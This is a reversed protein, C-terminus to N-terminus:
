ENASPHDHDHPARDPSHGLGALVANEAERMRARDAPEHDDFGCLHLAGHVAYLAVERAATVGRAAAVERARDISVYIEAEPGEEGTGLAFALVDTPSGDGLFRLHLDTLHGESVLIVDVELDEQGGHRLAHRVADRVGESPIEQADVDLHVRVTM